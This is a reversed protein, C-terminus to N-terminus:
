HKLTYIKDIKYTHLPQHSLQTILVTMQKIERVSCFSINIKSTNKIYVNHPLIVISACVLILSHSLNQILCLITSSVICLVVANLNRM